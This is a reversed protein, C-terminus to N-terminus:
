IDMDATASYNTCEFYREKVVHTFDHVFFVESVKMLRLPQSSLV